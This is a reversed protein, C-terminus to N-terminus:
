ASQADSRVTREEEAAIHDEREAVMKSLASVRGRKNVKRSASTSQDDDESRYNFAIVRTLKKGILLLQEM